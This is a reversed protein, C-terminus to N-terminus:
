QKQTQQFATVSSKVLLSQVACIREALEDATTSQSGISFAIVNVM